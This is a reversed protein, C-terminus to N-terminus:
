DKAEDGNVEDFSQLSDNPSLNYAFRADNRVRYTLYWVGRATSISCKTKRMSGLKQKM